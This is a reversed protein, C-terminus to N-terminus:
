GEEESIGRSKSLAGKKLSPFEGLFCFPVKEGETMLLSPYLQYDEDNAPGASGKILDLKEKSAVEM